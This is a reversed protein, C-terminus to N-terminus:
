PRYHVIVNGRTAPMAASGAISIWDGERGPKGGDHVRYSLTAGVAIGPLSSEVVPGSFTAEGAATTVTVVDVRYAGARDSYRLWGKDEGPTSSLDHLNFWAHAPNRSATSTNFWLNGAATSRPGTKNPQTAKEQGQTTPTPPKGKDSTSTPPKGKDTAVPPPGGKGNTRPGDLAFAPPQLTLLLVAATLAFLITKKVM